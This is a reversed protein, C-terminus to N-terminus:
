SAEQKHGRQCRGCQGCVLGGCPREVRRHDRTTWYPRTCRGAPSEWGSWPCVFM